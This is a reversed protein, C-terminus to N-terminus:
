KSILVVIRSFPPQVPEVEEIVVTSFGRKMARTVTWTQLVASELSWGLATLENVKDINISPSGGLGQVWVGRIGVADAGFHDMMLNFLDTGRISTDREVKIAFTVIGGELSGLCAAKSDAALYEFERPEM